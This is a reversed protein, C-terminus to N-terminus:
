EYVERRHRARFVTIIRAGRDFQYLVRYDGIRIKCFSAFEGKLAEPQMEEFHEGVWKLRKRVRQRMSSDLRALEREANPLLVVSYM